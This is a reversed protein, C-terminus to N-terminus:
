SGPKTEESIGNITKHNNQYQRKKRVYQFLYGQKPSFLLSIGLITTITIVIVPGTSMGESTSSIMSGVVGSIGGFIASLILMGKLNSVWQRAAAAPAILMAVMLVVGVTHLGIVVAVVIISTLLASLYRTPFGLSQAFASDFTAIKFEKFFVILVVFCGAALIGLTIVDKEILAAAQGFLFRDLGGQSAGGVGQLYTLLVIGLGFFVSLTIGLAADQKIRTTSTIGLTVIGGFWAFVAAGLMLFLSDKTGAFLYAIGIGPLAAHSLADGFLSQKRLVTFCGLAGSTIGLIASGLAVYRLTYDTFIGFFVSVIEELIM